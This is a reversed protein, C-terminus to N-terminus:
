AHGVNDSLQSIDVGIRRAAAEWREELPLDFCIAKDAPV